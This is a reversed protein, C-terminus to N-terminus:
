SYTVEWESQGVQVVNYVYHGLQLAIDRAGRESAAAVRITTLQEPM